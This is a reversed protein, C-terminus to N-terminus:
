PVPVRLTRTGRPSSLRVSTEDIAGVTWGDIRDGPSVRRIRGDPMRLLAQWANGQGFVGVLGAEGPPLAGRVTAARALDAPLARTEAPAPRSAAANRQAAAAQARAALTRPRAAPRPARLGASAAEAPPARAVLEAPRPSPRARALDAPPAQEPGTDGAEPAPGDSRTDATPEPVDSGPRPPPAVEALAALTPPLDLAQAEEEATRTDAAPPTPDPETAVAAPATVAAAPPAPVVPAATRPAIRPAPPSEPAPEEPSLAALNPQMTGEPPPRSPAPQALDPLVPPSAPPASPPASGPMRQPPGPEPAAVFLGAGPPAALGALRAPAAPEEALPEPGAISEPLPADSPAPAARQVADQAPGSVPEGAAPQPTIAVAPSTEAPPATLWAGALGLVVVAAVAAAAAAPWPLGMGALDPHLFAIRIGDPASDPHIGAAVPVFGWSQAFAIAEGITERDAAFVLRDGTSRQLTTAIILGEPDLGTRAAVAARADVPGYGPLRLSVVHGTPLWLAVAPRRGGALTALSAARAAFDPADLPVREVMAWGAGGRRMLSVATDSFALAHRARGTFPPFAM